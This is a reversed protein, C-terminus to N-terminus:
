RTAPAAPVLSSFNSRELDDEIGVVAFRCTQRNLARTSASIGGELLPISFFM